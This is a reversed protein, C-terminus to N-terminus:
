GYYGLFEESLHKIKARVRYKRWTLNTGVNDGLHKLAAFREYKLRFRKKM